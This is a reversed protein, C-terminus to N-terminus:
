WVLNYKIIDPLFIIFILFSQRYQQFVSVLLEFGFYYGNNCFLMHSYLTIKVNCFSRPKKALGKKHM